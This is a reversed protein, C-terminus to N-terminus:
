MFLWVDVCVGVCVCQSVCRAVLASGTGFQEHTSGKSLLDASLSHLGPLACFTVAVVRQENIQAAFRTM